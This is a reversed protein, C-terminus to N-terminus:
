RICDLPNANAARKNQITVTLLTIAFVIVFSLAFVWWYLPTKYAFAELWKHIFYYAITAAIVFCIVVIRLYVKNFLALIENTTSGFVKRIGIEKRRYESDFMVLGFVGVMSIIVALISFLTIMSRIATEKQYLHNFIEDYFEIKFPYSSDIKKLTERIHSVAEHVNTGAKLRIYSVPIDGESAFFCINNEGKRVSTIKIDETFGVIDGQYARYYNFMGLEMEMNNKATMNLICIPYEEKVDAETFNRGEIMKIGMTQFFNPSVMLNFYQFKKGKYETTSTSYNDQSGIKQSAFAVDEIGPYMKLEDSYARGHKNYMDESLEVVAIQDKDFGLSYQKMFHNQLQMFIAAIILTMSIVFQFGVLVTRFVRGKSSLGFCGKLVLAAPFSVIYLSPYLGAVIGTLLAILGTFIVIPVNHSLKLDVDIFTLWESESVASIILLGILWSFLSIIAAEALLSSKILSNDAGFVKQTNVSKMRIPTMANSFNTYNIGAIILILIAIGILLRTLSTDGCRFVTGDSHQDKYYIETLPILKTQEDPRGINTFDFNKNFNDAVDNALSADNLLVYCIFNSQDFNTRGYHDDIASYIVNRLQTNEPFDRYVAGVIYDLFQNKSTNKTWILGESHITKGIASKEGFMKRAMSEPIIVKDPEKLCGGDGEIIPFDFVSVIEPHCTQMTEKFGVKEDDKNVTFYIDGLYPCILTGSVIHPSSTLFDEIFARPLISSFIGSNQLDVRFVRDATSHCRDFRREFDVQIMIIMFAVFAISLGIVNLITAIRYRRLISLLNRFLTKMILM